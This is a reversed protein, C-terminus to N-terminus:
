TKVSPLRLRQSIETLQRYLEDLVQSILRVHGIVPMFNNDGTWRPVLHLHVHEPLGAGACRNINIGLNFGHPKIAETLAKQADRALLMMELLSKEDLNLLDGVHRAPALLLHGATYPFRNFVVLSRRTRWLVLNTQDQDPTRWYNCFFCEDPKDPDSPQEKQAHKLGLAKLYEMRWPAWLNKNKM